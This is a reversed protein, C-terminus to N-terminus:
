VVDDWEMWYSHPKFCLPYTCNKIQKGEFYKLWLDDWKDYFHYKLYTSRLVSYNKECVDFDNSLQISFKFIFKSRNISRVNYRNFIGRCPNNTSIVQYSKKRKKNYTKIRIVEM